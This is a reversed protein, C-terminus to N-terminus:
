SGLRRMVETVLEDVPRHTGAKFAPLRVFDYDPAELARYKAENNLNWHAMLDGGVRKALRENQVFADRCEAASGFLLVTTIGEKAFVRIRDPTFTLLSPFSLVAGVRGAEAARNQVAQFFSRSAGALLGDWESRLGEIDIGDGDPFRDINLHLFRRETALAEGLTTKGSGSPGLLFLVPFDSISNTAASVKWPHM